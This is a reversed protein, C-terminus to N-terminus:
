NEEEEKNKEYELDVYFKGENEQLKGELEGAMGQIKKSKRFQNEVEKLRSMRRSNNIRKMARSYSDQAKKDSIDLDKVGFSVKNKKKTKEQIEEKEEVAEMSEAKEDNKEEINDNDNSESEQIPEQEKNQNDEYINDDYNKLKIKAKLENIERQIDLEDKNQIIEQKNIISFLDNLIINLEDNTFYYKKPNLGSNNINKQKELELLQKVKQYELIVKEDYEQLENIYKIFKEREVQLRNYDEIISNYEKIKNDYENIINQKNKLENELEKNTENLKEIEDMLKNYENILNSNKEEFNQNILDVKKKLKENEKKLIDIEENNNSNNNNDVNENEVKIGNKLQDYEKKKIFMVPEHEVEVNEKELITNISDVNNQLGIEYLMKGHFKKSLIFYNYKIKDNNYEEDKEKRLRKKIYRLVEDDNNFVLKGENNEKEKEKERERKREKKDNKMEEGIYNIEDNQIEELNEFGNEKSNYSNLISLENTSIKELNDFNNINKYNLMINNNNEVTFIERKKPIEVEKNEDKQINEVNFHSPTLNKKKKNRYYNSDNYQEVNQNAIKENSPKNNENNDSKDTNNNTYQGIIDNKGKKIRKENSSSASIIPSITKGNKELVDNKRNKITDPNIKIENEVNYNNYINENVNDNDNNEDQEVKIKHINNINNDKENKPFNQNDSNFSINPSNNNNEKEKKTSISSQENFFSDIPKYRINDNFNNNTNNYYNVQNLVGGILNPYYKYKRENYPVRFVKKSKAASNELYNRKESNKSKRESNKYRNEKQNSTSRKPSLNPKRQSNTEITNFRDKSAANREYLKQFLENKFKSNPEEQVVLKAKPKINKKPDKKSKLSSPKM